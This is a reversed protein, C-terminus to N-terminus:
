KKVKISCGIAKTVETKVKEGKLLANVADKVYYESVDDADADAHKNFLKRLFYLYEKM